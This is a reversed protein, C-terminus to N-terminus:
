YEVFIGDLMEYRFVDKNLLFTIYTLLSYRLISARECLWQQRPFAIRTVYESHMHKAKTIWCAFRMRLITNDDTAHRTRGYKEM